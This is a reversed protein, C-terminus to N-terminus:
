VLKQKKCCDDSEGKGRRMNKNQKYKERKELHHQYKNGKGITSFINEDELDM